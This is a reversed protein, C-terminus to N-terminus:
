SINMKATKQYAKEQPKIHYDNYEHTHTSHRYYQQKKGATKKIHLTTISLLAQSFAV